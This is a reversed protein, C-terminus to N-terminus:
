HKRTSKKAKGSHSSRKRTVKKSKRRGGQTPRVNYHRIFSANATVSIPMKDTFRSANQTNKLLSVAGDSIATRYYVVKGVHEKVTNKYIQKKIDHEPMRFRGIFEPSEGDKLHLFTFSYNNAQGDTKSIDLNVHLTKTGQQRYATPVFGQPAHGFIDYDIIDGTTNLFKKNKENKALNAEIWKLSGGELKATIDGVRSEIPVGQFGVIPSAKANAGHPLVTPATLHVFKSILLHASETAEKPYGIDRLSQVADVLSNKDRELDNILTFLSAPTTFKAQEPNFGFPSTLTRSAPTGKDMFGTPFGGHSVLGKKDGITFYALAHCRRLYHLYLGNLIQLEDPLGEWMFSMLMQVACIVKARIEEQGTTNFDILGCGPYIADLEIMYNDQGKSVGMTPGFTKDLRAAIGGSAYVTEIGPVTTTVDNKTTTTNKFARTWGDLVDYLYSPPEEKRFTWTGQKLNEVMDKFTTTGDWPKIGNSTIYLELGMRIKNFDRNGGILLVKDGYKEKLVCMSRLARISCKENDVLDGLFVLGVDGKLGMLLGGDVNKPKLFDFKSKLETPIGEDDESGFSFPAGGEEDSFMYVDSFTYKTPDIAPYNPDLQTHFLKTSNNNM